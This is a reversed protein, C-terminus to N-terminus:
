NTLQPIMINMRKMYNEMLRIDGINKEKCMVYLQPLLSVIQTKPYIYGNYFYTSSDFLVLKEFKYMQLYYEVPINIDESLVKYNFGLEAFIGKIRNRAYEKERPHFKIYVIKDTTISSFFCKVVDFCCQELKPNDYRPQSIFLLKDRTSNEISGNLYDDLKKSSLKIVPLVEDYPENFYGPVISYRRYIPLENADIGYNYRYKAFKVHYIPLYYLFDHLFVKIRMKLSNNKKIAREVYHSSGEEFVSVKYGQHSFLVINFRNSENLIEGVYISGVNNENIIYKLKKYNDYANKVDKYSKTRGGTWIAIDYFDIKKDWLENICIMDYISSFMSPVNYGLVLINNKLNKYKIIQQAVFLQFPMFVIFLNGMNNNENTTKRM